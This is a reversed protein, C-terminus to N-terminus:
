GGGALRPDAKFKPDNPNPPTIVVGGQPISENGPVENVITAGSQTKGKPKIGTGGADATAGEKQGCGGLVLGCFISLLILRIM